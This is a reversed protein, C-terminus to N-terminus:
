RWFLPALGIPSVSPQAMHSIRHCILRRSPHVFKSAECPCSKESGCPFPFIQLSVKATYFTLEVQTEQWNTTWFNDLLVERTENLPETRAITISSPFNGWGAIYWHNQWWKWKDWIMTMVLMACPCLSTHPGSVMRFDVCNQWLDKTADMVLSRKIMNKWPLLITKELPTEGTHLSLTYPQQVCFAHGNSAFSALSFSSFLLSCHWVGRDVWAQSSIM